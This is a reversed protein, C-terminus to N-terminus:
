HCKTGIKLKIPCAPIKGPTMKCGQGWTVGLEHGGSHPCPVADGDPAKRPFRRCGLLSPSCVSGGGWGRAPGEPRQEFACEPEGQCCPHAAPLHARGHAPRPCQWGGFLGTLSVSCPRSHLPCPLRRGPSGELVYGAPWCWHQAGPVEAPQPHELPLVHPRAGVVSAMGPPPRPQSFGM